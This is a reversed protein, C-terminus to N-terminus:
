KINVKRLAILSFFLRFLYDTYISCSSFFFSLFAFSVLTWSSLLRRRNVEEPELGPTGYTLPAWFAFGGAQFFIIIAVIVIMKMNVVAKTKPRRRTTQGAVSVPYNITDSTIFHFVAGTVLASCLHAPLYHHLFLQRSMSFFPIYHYMWALMFFGGSNYLRNRTAILPLLFFCQFWILISIFICRMFNFTFFSKGEAIPSLGRRKALQDAGMIGLFVSLAMVCLWWSVPNGILYVQEKNETKGTWFSIGSLLFPWNIPGSAYPHSDTLGANHSLM